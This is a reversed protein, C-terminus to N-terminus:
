SIRLSKKQELEVGPVEIGDKLLDAITRKDVTTTTKVTFLHPPILSEDLIRVSQASNYLTVNFLSSKIKEKGTNEMSQKVYNILWEVDKNLKAARKNLRDAESKVADAEAAKSRILKVISEVKADFADDLADLTDKFASLDDAGEMMENFRVYQDSLEYLKM